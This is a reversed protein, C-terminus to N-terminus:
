TRVEYALIEAALTKGTGPPGYFLASLGRTTGHHLDFGWEGFLVDSIRAYDIMTQLDKKVAVPLVASDLGRLPTTKEALNALQLKGHLQRQAAHMLDSQTVRYGEEGRLIASM